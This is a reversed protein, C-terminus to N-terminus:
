DHLRAGEPDYHSTETITVPVALDGIFADVSSGLLAAGGALMALGVSATLHDSCVSSTCHGLVKGQDNVFHTGVPIATANDASRFGALQLREPSRQCRRQLARKGVFDATKKAALAGWGVDLPTTESDTDVGVELFGKEVRLCDLAEMGLPTIGQEAGLELLRRWLSDAYQAPVNLEYGLEGTFSVRALRLDIGEM